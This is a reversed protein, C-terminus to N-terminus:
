TQLTKKLDDESMCLLVSDLIEEVLEPRLAPRQKLAEAPQTFILDLAEARLDDLHFRDASALVECAAEPKMAQRVLHLCSAHLAEVQYKDAM